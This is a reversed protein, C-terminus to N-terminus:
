SSGDRWNRRGGEHHHPYVVSFVQLTMHLCMLCSLPSDEASDGGDVGVEGHVSSRRLVMFPMM